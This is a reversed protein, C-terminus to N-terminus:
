EQKETSGEIELYVVEQNGDREMEFRIINEGFNQQLGQAIASSFSVGKESMQSNILSIIDGNQFGLKSLASDPQVDDVRFSGSDLTTVPITFDEAKAISDLVERDIKPFGSENFIDLKRDASPIETNEVRDYNNDVIPVTKGRNTGSNLKLELEVGDKILVVRDKIIETIRGGRIMDGLRYFKQDRSINNEIIAVPKGSDSIVTGVLTINFTKKLRELIIKDNESLKGAQTLSEPVATTDSASVNISAVMLGILCM